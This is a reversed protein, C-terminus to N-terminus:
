SDATAFTPCFVTSNEETLNVGRNDRAHALPRFSEDSNGADWLVVQGSSAMSQPDSWSVRIQNPNHFFVAQNIAEILDWEERSERKLCIFHANWKMILSGDLDATRIIRQKTKKIAKTLYAKAEPDLRADDPHMLGRMTEAVESSPSFLTDIPRGLATPEQYLWQYGSAWVTPDLYDRDGGGELSKVDYHYPLSVDPSTFVSQGRFFTFPDQDLFQLIVVGMKKLVSLLEHSFRDEDLGQELTAKSPLTVSLGFGQPFQREIRTNVPLLPGSFPMDRLSLERILTSM